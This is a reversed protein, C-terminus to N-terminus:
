FNQKDTQLWKSILFSHSQHQIPGMIKHPGQPITNQSHLRNIICRHLRELQDFGLNWNYHIPNTSHLNTLPFAQYENLACLWNWPGFEDLSDSRDLPKLKNLSMSGIEFESNLWHQYHLHLWSRYKRNIFHLPSKNGVGSLAPICIWLNVHNDAWKYLYMGFYILSFSSSSYFCFTSSSSSSSSSSFSSFSFSSLSSSFSHPSIRCSWYGSSSTSSRRRRRRWRRRRRRKPLSFFVSLNVSLFLSLSLFISLFLFLSFLYHGPRHFTGIIMKMCKNTIHGSGNKISKIYKLHIQLSPLTSPRKRIWRAFSISYIISKPLYFSHMLSAYMTSLGFPFALPTSAILSDIFSTSQQDSVYVHFYLSLTSFSRCNSWPKKNPRRVLRQIFEMCKNNSIFCGAVLIAAVGGRGRRGGSERRERLAEAPM